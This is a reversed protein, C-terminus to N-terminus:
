TALQPVSAILLQKFEKWLPIIRDDPTLHRSLACHGQEPDSDFKIHEILFHKFAALLPNDWDPSTLFARFVSELGGGEYSAISMARTVPDMERVTNLYSRGRDELNSQRKEDFHSLKLLRRMFEDHNM